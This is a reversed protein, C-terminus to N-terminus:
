RKIYINVDLVSAYTMPNRTYIQWDEFAFIERKIASELIRYDYAAASPLQRQDIRALRSEFAKLRKLEAEISAQSFDTVKGDYQHLGLSTGSQPRWALYGSIYDDALQNFSSEPRTSTSRSEPATPQVKACGALVATLLLMLLIQMRAM